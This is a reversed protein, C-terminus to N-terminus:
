PYEADHDDILIALRDDEIALKAPLERHTADWVRLGGYRLM